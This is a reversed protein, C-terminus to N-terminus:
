MHYSLIHCTADNPTKSINQWNKKEVMQNFCNSQAVHFSLSKGIIM